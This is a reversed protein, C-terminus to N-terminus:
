GAQILWKMLYEKILIAAPGFVTVLVVLVLMVQMSIPDVGYWEPQCYHALVYARDRSQIVQSIVPM